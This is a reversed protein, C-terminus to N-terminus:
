RACTRLLIREQGISFGVRISASKALTSPAVVREFDTVKLRKQITAESDDSISLDRGDSNIVLM